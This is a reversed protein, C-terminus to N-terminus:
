VGLEDNEIRLTGLTDGAADPGELLRAIPRPHYNRHEVRPRALLAAEIARWDEPFVINTHRAGCRFCFAVPEDPGTANGANCPCFILWRGLDIYAVRPETDNHIEVRSGAARLQGIAVQQKRLYGGVDRCLM